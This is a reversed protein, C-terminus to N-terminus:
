WGRGGRAGEQFLIFASNQAHNRAPFSTWFWYGNACWFGVIIATIIFIALWIMSIQMVVTRMNVSVFWRVINFQWDCRVFTVMVFGLKRVIVHGTCVPHSNKNCELNQRKKKIMISSDSVIYKNMTRSKQLNMRMKMPGWCKLNTSSGRHGEDNFVVVKWNRSFHSLCHGYQQKYLAEM